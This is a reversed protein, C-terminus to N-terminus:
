CGYSEVFCMEIMHVKLSRTLASVISDKRLHQHTDVFVVNDEFEVHNLLMEQSVDVGIIVWNYMPGSFLM